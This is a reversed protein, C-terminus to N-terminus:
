ELPVVLVTGPQYFDPSLAPNLNIVDQVRNPDGFLAVAIEVASQEARVEYEVVLPADQFAREAIRSITAMLRATAVLVGYGSEPDASAAADERVAAIRALMTDLEAGIEDASTIDGAEIRSQFRMALATFLRVEDDDVTTPGFGSSSTVTTTFSVPAPIAPAIISVGASLGVNASFSASLGLALIETGTLPVGKEKMKKASDTPKKGADALADDVRTADDEASTSSRAAGRTTLLTILERGLTEFTLQLKGGDREKSTTNWGYDVLRVLLPGFEPDTLTARGRVTDSEFFEILDNVLNPYHEEDVDRFLPVTYVIERPEAGTDEDEQGNRFPYRRRAWARGGKVHRDEVPFTLEVDGAQLTADLLNTPWYGSQAM